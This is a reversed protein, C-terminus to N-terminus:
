AAVDRQKRQKLLQRRLAQAVEDAAAEFSSARRKAFLDAGPIHLKIDVVKNEREDNKEVRLYVEASLVQDHFTSLKILKNEVFDLLRQDADFHISQIQVQM